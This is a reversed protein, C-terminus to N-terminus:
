SVHKAQGDFQVEELLKNVKKAQTLLRGRTSKLEVVKKHSTTELDQYRQIEADLRTIEEKLADM